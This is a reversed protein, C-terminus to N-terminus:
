FRKIKFKKAVGLSVNRDLITSSKIINATIGNLFGEEEVEVKPYFCNV